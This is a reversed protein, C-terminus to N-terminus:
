RHPNNFECPVRTQCLGCGSGYQYEGGWAVARQRGEENYTFAYCKYKDHGSESIAGAPCRKICAGCSGNNCFLCNEAHHKVKREDADIVADTVVSALRVSMGKETIFGDNLSFSGQGAAYAIHRESWNSALGVETRAYTKFNESQSPALTRFGQSQLLFIIHDILSPLFFEDGFTRLLAWERSAFEKQVRNSKRIVESVPLVVSIVTGSHFSGKGFKMEFVEKPTFHFPGIIQKYEEFLPDRASAFKVLPQEYYPIDTSSMKNQESKSVFCNISDIIWEKIIM